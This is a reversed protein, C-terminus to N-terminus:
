ADSRDELRLQGGGLMQGIRPEAYKTMKYDRTTEYIRRLQQKKEESLVGLADMSSLAEYAEWHVTTLKAKVEAVTPPFKNTSILKQIAMLVIDVPMDAFQMCWVGVTGAAEEKTMGQYSSPYAAKLIALIQVAEKKTM